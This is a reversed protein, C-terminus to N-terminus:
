KDLEEKLLNLGEIIAGTRNLGAKKACEILLANEAESLRIELRLTKPNTTPRGYNPNDTRKVYAM